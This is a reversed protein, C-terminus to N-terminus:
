ALPAFADLREQDQPARNLSRNLNVDPVGMGKNEITLSLDIDADKAV